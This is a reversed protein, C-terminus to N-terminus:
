RDICLEKGPIDPMMPRGGVAILIHDATYEVGEVVVKKKDVFSAMQWAHPTM